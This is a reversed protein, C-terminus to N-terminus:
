LDDFDDGSYNTAAIPENGNNLNTNKKIFNFDNKVNQVFELKKADLDDGPKPQFLAMKGELFAPFNADKEFEKKLEDEIATKSKITGLEHRLGQLEENDKKLVEKEKNSEELFKAVRNKVEEDRMKILEIDGNVTNISGDNNRIEEGFLQKKSFLQSPDIRRKNLAEKLEHISASMLVENMDLKKGGTAAQAAAQYIHEASKFAPSTNQDLAAVAFSNTVNLVKGVQEGNEFYIEADHDFELSINPWKKKIDVTKEDFYLLIVGVTNNGTGMSFAGVAKGLQNPKSQGFDSHGEYIPFPKSNITKQTASVLSLLANESMYSRQMEVQGDPNKVVHPETMGVSAMVYAHIQPKPNHRKIDALLLPHAHKKITAEDLTYPNLFMLNSTYKSM